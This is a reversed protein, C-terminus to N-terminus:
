PGIVLAKNAGLSNATGPAPLTLTAANGVADAITGGALALAGASAYDLDFTLNGAVVTYTFTLTTTTSGSTYNM